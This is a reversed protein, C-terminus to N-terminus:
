CFVVFEFLFFILTEVFGFYCLVDSLELL